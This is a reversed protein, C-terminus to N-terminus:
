SQLFSGFQKEFYNRWKANGSAILTREQQWFESSQRCVAQRWVGGTSVAVRCCRSVPQGLPVPSRADDTATTTVQPFVDTSTVSNYILPSSM